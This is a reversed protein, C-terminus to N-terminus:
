GEEWTRAKTLFSVLYKKEGEEGDKMRKRGKWTSVKINM